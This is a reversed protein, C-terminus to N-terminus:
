SISYRISEWGGPLVVQHIESNIERSWEAARNLAPFESAYHGLDILSLGQCVLDQAEHYKMDASIFVQCGAEMADKAFDLGAGGLCAAKNIRDAKKGYYVLSECELRKKLYSAYEELSMSSINGIKGMGKSYSYIPDDSNRKRLPQVETFGCREALVDNVGGDVFDFATHSSYVSIGKELCSWILRNKPDDLLFHSLPHFFVPHHTFILNYERKGAEQVANETLDLSFLIGKLEGEFSGLQRGGHDWPEQIALPVKKEWAEIWNQIKM